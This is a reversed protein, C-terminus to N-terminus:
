FRLFFDKLLTRFEATYDHRVETEVTLEDSLLHPRKHNEELHTRRRYFEMLLRHPPKSPTPRVFTKRVLHLGHITAANMLRPAKDVPLIVSFRGDIDLLEAVRSALAEPTLADSHRALSRVQEPSKMESDYWPPNSVILGYRDPFSVSMFDDSFAKLRLSWPSVQCNEEAEKAAEPDIEVADVLSEPFRQALMLAILGCGTGVDLIRTSDVARCWAGLLVGDTGVKMASREHRVSFQKFRFVREL